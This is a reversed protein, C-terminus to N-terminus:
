STGDSMDAKVAIAQGGKVEIEAVSHDAPDKSAAFNVLVSAGEAALGRAIGAGLGKSAGTVVDVKGKL